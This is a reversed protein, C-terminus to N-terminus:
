SPDESNALPAKGPKKPNKGSFVALTALFLVLLGGFLWGMRSRGPPESVLGSTPSEPTLHMTRDGPLLYFLQAKSMDQSVPVTWLVADLIHRDPMAFCLPGPAAPFRWKGQLFKRKASAHEATYQYAPPVTPDLEAVTSYIPPTPANLQEWGKGQDMGLGTEMAQRAAAEDPVVPNESYDVWQTIEIGGDPLWAAKAYLVDMHAHALSSHALFFWVCLNLCRRAPPPKWM